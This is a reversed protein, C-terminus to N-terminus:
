NISNFLLTSREKLAKFIQEKANIFEYRQYILSNLEKTIFEVSIAAKLLHRLVKSNLHGMM